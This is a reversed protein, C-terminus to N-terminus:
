NPKKKRTRAATGPRVSAPGDDTSTNRLMATTAVRDRGTQKAHYMAADARALVAELTDGDTPCEGIGISLTVAPRDEGFSHEAMRARIREAVETAQELPTDPLLATFEEGGYRGCYDASRITESLAEGLRTLVEDGALHGFADNYQKFHDVDIMMLSFPRQNRQARLIEKEVTEMLYRRNPLGTLGDTRSLRELEDRGQRLRTVMDNFVETVYAVEGGGLVPVATTLDGAAVERAGHALRDLPLAITLGLLYALAGIVVLLASVTLFTLVRLRAIPAYADRAPLEAVVAWDLREIPALAGLV